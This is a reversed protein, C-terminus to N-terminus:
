IMFRTGRKWLGVRKGKAEGGREGEEEGRRKEGAEKNV